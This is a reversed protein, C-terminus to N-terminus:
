SEYDSPNELYDDVLKKLDNVFDEIVDECEYFNDELFWGDDEHMVTYYISDWGGLAKERKAEIEFGRYNVKM